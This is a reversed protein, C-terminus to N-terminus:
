REGPCKTGSMGLLQWLPSCRKGNCCSMYPSGWAHAAKGHAPQCPSLLLGDRHQRGRHPQPVACSPQARALRVPLHLIPHRSPMGPCHLDGAPQHLAPLPLCRRRQVAPPVAFEHGGPPIAALLQQPLLIRGVLVGGPMNGDAESPSGILMVRLVTSPISPGLKLPATHLPCHAKPGHVIQTFWMTQMHRRDITHCLRGALEACHRRTLPARPEQRLYLKLLHTTSSPVSDGSSCRSSGGVSM